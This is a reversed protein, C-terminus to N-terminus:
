PEYDRLLLVHSFKTKRVFQEDATVLTVGLTKALYAYMMDYVSTGYTKAELAATFVMDKEAHHVLLEMRWLKRLSNALGIRKIASKTVIANAVELFLFDLVSIDFEGERQLALLQRARNSDKEKHLWKLAVSADVVIM